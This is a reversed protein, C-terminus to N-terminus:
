PLSGPLPLITVVIKLILLFLCLLYSQPTPPLSIQSLFARPLLLPIHLSRFGSLACHQLSPFSNPTAALSHAFLHPLLPWIGTLRVSSHPNYGLPLLEDSFPELCFVLMKLDRQYCNRILTHVIWASTTLSALVFAKATAPLVPCHLCVATRPSLLM